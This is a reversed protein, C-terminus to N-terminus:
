YACCTTIQEIFMPASLVELAPRSFQHYLDLMPTLLKPMKPTGNQQCTRPETYDATGTTELRGFMRPLLAPACSIFFSIFYRSKIYRLAKVNV